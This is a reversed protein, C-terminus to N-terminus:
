SSTTNTPRCPELTRHSAAEEASADIAAHVDSSGPETASLPAAVPPVWVVAPVAGVTELPALPVVGGM